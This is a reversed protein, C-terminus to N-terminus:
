WKRASSRDMAAFRRHHVAGEQVEEEVVAAATEEEALLLAVIYVVLVQNVVVGVPLLQVIVRQVLDMVNVMMEWAHAPLAVAAAEQVQLLV